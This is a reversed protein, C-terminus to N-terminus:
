RVQMGYAPNSWRSRLVAELFWLECDSEGRRRVVFVGVFQGNATGSAVSIPKPVYIFAFAGKDDALRIKIRETQGKCRYSATGRRGNSSRCRRRLCSPQQRRACYVNSPSAYELM